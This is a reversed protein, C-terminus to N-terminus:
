TVIRAQKLRDVVKIVHKCVGPVKSPNAPPRVGKAIYPPPAQGALSNDGANWSAFRYYFDLCNCRVRVNSGNLPIPQIHYENNDAGRFTTNQASDQPEFTVNRFAVTPEYQNGSSVARANVHLEGNELYPVYEMRNIAVPGTAYQRKKTNPFGQRINTDLQAYTSDEELWDLFRQGRLIMFEM